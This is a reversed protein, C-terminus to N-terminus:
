NYQVDISYINVNDKESYVYLSDVRGTYEVSGISLEEGAPITGLVTGDAKVVKLSRSADNSAAAISITCDRTVDIKVARYDTSGKGRLSLCYDYTVGDLTRANEKVQVPHTTDALITVDDFATNSTITGLGSLSADSFNWTKTEPTTKIMVCKKYIFTPTTFGTKGEYFYLVLDPSCWSFANEDEVLNQPANGEFYVKLLNECGRFAKEHINTVSEPIIMESIGTYAFAMWSIVALNSNEEITVEELSSEDYFAYEDIYTVTNPIFVSKVNVCKEFAYMGIYEVGNEITISGLREWESFAEKDIGTVETGDIVSPIVLDQPNQLVGNDDYAPELNDIYGTIRGTGKDLILSYDSTRPSIMQCKHGIWTPSSYGTKGEYYYLVLYSSCNSFANEDEELNQPADGEFYVKELYKCNRFAKEHINTVSAPITVEEFCCGAFAMYNIVALQPNEGFVLKDLFKADYFAYEDIYTLSDPIYVTELNGCEQFASVGIYEIGDEITVSGLREWGMLAEEDIGTIEIGNIVSPIVLDLPNQLFRGSYVPEINDTYGTIRGTSEDVILSYDSTSIMKCSYGLWYPTTFGTKGEYFYIVLSDEIYADFASEAMNEPANGEFVCKRLSECGGFACEGITTVSAPITISRYGGYAFAYDGIVALQSNEAFNLECVMGETYFAKYKIETITSPINVTGLKDCYKFAERGITQVGEEIDLTYFYDAYMFAGDAIGLVPIGNIEAPIVLVEGHTGDDYYGTIMQTNENFYLCGYIIDDAHATDDESEGGTEEAIEEEAATEEEEADSSEAATEEEVVTENEAATEMDAAFASLNTSGIAMMVALASAAARKNFKM